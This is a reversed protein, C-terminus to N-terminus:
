VAAVASAEWRGLQGAVIEVWVATGPAITRTGDAIQACHFPYRRGDDGLVVGLGADEDFDLVTGRLM